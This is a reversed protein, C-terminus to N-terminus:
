RGAEDQHPERLLKKDIQMKRTQKSGGVGEEGGREWRRM